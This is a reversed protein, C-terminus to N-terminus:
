VAPEIGKDRLQQRLQELRSFKKQPGPERALGLKERADGLVKEFEDRHSAILEEIALRHAKAGVHRKDEPM